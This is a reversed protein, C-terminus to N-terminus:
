LKQIKGSYFTQNSTKLIYLYIGTSLENIDIHLIQGVSVGRRIIQGLANVLEYTISEDEQFYPFHMLWSDTVPNGLLVVEQESPLVCSQSNWEINGYCDTKVLFFDFGLPLTYRLISGGILIGGDSSVVSVGNYIENDEYGWSKNWLVDFDATFKAVSIDFNQTNEGAKAGFVFLENKDKIYQLRYPTYDNSDNLCITSRVLDGNFDFEALILQESVSGVNDETSFLIATSNNRFPSICYTNNVLGVIDQNGFSFNSIDKRWLENGEFDTKLLLYHRYPNSDPEISEIVIVYGDEQQSVDFILDTFHLSEQTSYLKRYLVNGDDDFFTAEGDTTGTGGHSNGFVVLGTETPFIAKVDNDMVFHSSDGFSKSWKLEGQESYKALVKTQNTSGSYADFKKGAIYLNQNKIYSASYYASFYTSDVQYSVLNGSTSLLSVTPYNRGFAEDYRIGILVFKTDWQNATYLKVSKKSGFDLYSYRKFFTHQAMISFSAFCVIIVTWKSFM